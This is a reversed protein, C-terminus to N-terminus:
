QSRCGTLLALFEQAMDRSLTFELVPEDTTETQGPCEMWAPPRGPGDIPEGGLAAQLKGIVSQLHCDECADTNEFRPNKECRVCLM